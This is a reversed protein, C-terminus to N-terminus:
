VKRDAILFARAEIMSLVQRGLEALDKKSRVLDVFRKQNEKDSCDLCEMYEVFGWNTVYHDALVVIDQQAQQERKRREVMDMELKRQCESAYDGMIVAGYVIKQATTFNM